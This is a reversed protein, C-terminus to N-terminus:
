DAAKALMLCMRHSVFGGGSPPPEMLEGFELRAM